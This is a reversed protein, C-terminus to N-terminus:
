QLRLAMFHEDACKGGHCFAEPETGWVRFGAREYVRRADPPTDNVSLQVWRVGPLSRAHQVAAAILQGGLGAGRHAPEVYVGWIHAKHSAKIRPDRFLGAVGVLEPAFAGFIMWEPARGLQERVTEVSGVFDDEPSAAFALPVDALARRRLEVYAAADAATLERITAKM